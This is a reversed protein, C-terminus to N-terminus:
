KYEDTLGGTPKHTGISVLFARAAEPTATHRAMAREAFRAFEAAEQADRDSQRLPPSPNSDM